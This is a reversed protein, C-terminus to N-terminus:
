DKNMNRFKAEKRSNEEMLKNLEPEILPLLEEALEYMNTSFLEPIGNKDEKYNVKANNINQRINFVSKTPNIGGIIVTPLWEKFKWSLTEIREPIPFEPIDACYSYYLWVEFCSNSVILKFNEQVCLQKIQLLVDMFEDVDAVLYVSDSVNSTENEEFRRKIKIAEDYMKDPSLGEEGTEDNRGIFKVNIRPFTKIDMIKSFYQKERRIGGSVIIFLASSLEGDPKIYDVSIFGKPLQQVDEDFIIKPREIIPRESEKGEGKSYPNINKSM